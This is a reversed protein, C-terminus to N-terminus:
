EGKEFKFYDLRFLDSGSGTFKLYVNQKGEVAKLNCTIKVNGSDPNVIATGLLGGRLSGVRLEITGKGSVDSLM